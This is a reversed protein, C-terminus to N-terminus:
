VGSVPVEHDADEDDRVVGQGVAQDLRHRVHQAHTRRLELRQGDGRGVIREVQQRRARSITALSSVPSPTSIKESM